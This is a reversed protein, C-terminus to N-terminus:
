TEIFINSKKLMCTTTYLIFIAVFIKKDLPQKMHSEIIGVTLYYSHLTTHFEKYSCYKIFTSYFNSFHRQIAYAVDFLENCRGVGQSSAGRNKLEVNDESDYVM